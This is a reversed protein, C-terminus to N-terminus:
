GVKGVYLDDRVGGEEGVRGACGRRASDERKVRSAGAKPTPVGPWVLEVGEPVVPRHGFFYPLISAAIEDSLTPPYPKSKTPAPTTPPAPSSFPLPPPPFFTGDQWESKPSSSSSSSSATATSTNTSLPTPTSPPLTSTISTSAITSSPRLYNAIIKVSSSSASLTSSSSSSSPPAAANPDELGDYMADQPPALGPFLSEVDDDTGDGPASVYQPRPISNKKGGGEGGDDGDDDEEEETSKSKSKPRPKSKSSTFFSSSSSLAPKTKEKGKGMDKTPKKSSAPNPKAFPTSAPTPHASQDKEAVNNLPAKANKTSPLSSPSSSARDKEARIEMRRPWRVVRKLTSPASKKKTKSTTANKPAPTTKMSSKEGKGKPATKSPPKSTTKNGDAGKKPTPTPKASGKKGEIGTKSPPKSTSKKDDKTKKSAPTTKANGKKGEPTTKSPPKPTDIGDKTKKPAPTTKASGKKGETGTKSPPKSSMENGDKAKKGSGAPKKSSKSPGPTASAGEEVDEGGDKAVPWSKEYGAPMPGFFKRVDDDTGDGAAAGAESRSTPTPVASPAPPTQTSSSSSPAQRRGVRRRRKLKHSTGPTSLHPQCEMGKAVIRLAGYSWVANADQTCTYFETPSKCLLAGPKCPLYQSVDNSAYTIRSSGCNQVPAAEQPIAQPTSTPTDVQSPIYQQRNYTGSNYDAHYTPEDANESPSSSAEKKSSSEYLANPKQAPKAKSNSTHSKGSQKEPNQPVAATEPKKAEPLSESGANSVQNATGESASAVKGNEDGLSALYTDLEQQVKPKSENSLVDSSMDMGAMSDSVPQPLPELVAVSAVPKLDTSASPSLQAANDGCGNPHWQGDNLACSSGSSGSSSSAGSSGAEQGQNLSSSGSWQGSNGGSSEGLSGVNGDTSSGAAIPGSAGKRGVGTCAGTKGTAAGASMGDGYIVSKGPEDFDVDVTEKTTCDNIGKLNAVFLDPLNGLAAQASNTDRNNLLPRKKSSSSSSSSSSPVINVVACNMYMERNGIKNFWTWGLLCVAEGLGEPVGFEYTSKLPCGGVISELVKFHVGNDCSLSIQCSGGGHTAGGKLTISYKQGATYTAVPVLPTNWQYGKCSFDSGDAHLPTLINYDKPEAARNSHPDRLPSPDIMQMHTLATPLFPLLTLAHLKSPPM